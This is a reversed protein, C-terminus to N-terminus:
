SEKTTPKAAVKKKPVPKVIQKAVHKEPKNAEYEAVFKDWINHVKRGNYRKAVAKPTVNHKGDYFFVEMSPLNDKYIAYLEKFNM